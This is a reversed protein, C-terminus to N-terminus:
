ATFKDRTASVQEAIASIQRHLEDATFDPAPISVSFPGDDGVRFDVRFLVRPQGGPGLDSQHSQRIISVKQM